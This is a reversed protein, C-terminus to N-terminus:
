TAGGGQSMYPGGKAISGVDMAIGGGAGTVRGDGVDVEISSNEALCNIFSIATKEPPDVATLCHGANQVQKCDIM